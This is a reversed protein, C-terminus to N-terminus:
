QGNKKALGQFGPADDKFAVGVGLLWTGVVAFGAAYPALQPLPAGVSPHALGYLLTGVAYCFAGLVRRHNQLFHVKAVYEIVVPLTLMRAEKELAGLADARAEADRPHRLWVLVRRARHYLGLYGFITM